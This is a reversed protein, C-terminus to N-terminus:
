NPSACLGRAGPGRSTRPAGEPSRGGERPPPARLTTGPASRCRRPGRPPPARGRHSPVRRPARAGPRADASGARASPRRPSSRGRAPVSGRWLGRPRRAAARLSGPRGAQLYTGPRRTAPRPLAPPRRRPAPLAARRPPLGTRRGSPPAGPRPARASQWAAPPSSRLSSPAVRKRHNRAHPPRPISRGRATHVGRPQPRRRKGKPGGWGRVQVSQPPLSPPLSALPLNEARPLGRSALLTIGITVLGCSVTRKNERPKLCCRVPSGLSM